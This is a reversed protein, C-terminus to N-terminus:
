PLYYARQLQWSTTCHRAGRISNHIELSYHVSAQQRRAFAPFNMPQFAGTPWKWDGQKHAQFSTPVDRHFTVQAQREKTASQARCGLGRSTLHRQAERNNHPTSRNLQQAPASTLKLSSAREHPRLRACAAAIAHVCSSPAELHRALRCIFSLTKAHIDSERRLGLLVQEVEMRKGAMRKWRKGRPDLRGIVHLGNVRLWKLHWVALCSLLACHQALAFARDAPM